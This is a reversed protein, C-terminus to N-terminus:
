DEIKHICAYTAMSWHVDFPHQVRSTKWETNILYADVEEAVCEQVKDLHGSCTWLTM